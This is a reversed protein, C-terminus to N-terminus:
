KVEELEDADDARYRQAVYTALDPTIDRALVRKLGISECLRRLSNATRGFRLIDIEDGVAM